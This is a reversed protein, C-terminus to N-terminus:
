GGPVHLTFAGRPMEKCGSVWGIKQLLCECDHARGCDPLAQCRHSNEGGVDSGLEICMQKATACRVSGCPFDRPACGLLGLSTTTVLILIKM